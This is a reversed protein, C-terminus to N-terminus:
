LLLPATVIEDHGGRRVRLGLRVVGAPLDAAFRGHDDTRLTHTEETVLDIEAPGPPVVRGVLRRTPRGPLVEVEIEVDGAEFALTRPGEGRVVGEEEDVLSDYSLAALEADITRWAFLGKAAETVERPARRDALAAALEAALEDDTM